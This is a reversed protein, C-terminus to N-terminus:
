SVEGGEIVGLGKGELSELLDWDLRDGIRTLRVREPATCAAHLVTVTELTAGYQVIMLAAERALFAAEATSYIGLTIVNRRVRRSKIVIVPRWLPEEHGKAYFPSIGRHPTNISCLRPCPHPSFTSLPIPPKPM